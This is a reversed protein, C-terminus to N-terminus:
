LETGSAYLKKDQAHKFLKEIQIKQQNDFGLNMVAHAFEHVLISEQNYRRCCCM